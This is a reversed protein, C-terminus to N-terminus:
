WRCNEIFNILYANKLIFNVQQTAYIRLNTPISPPKTPGTVATKNASTITWPTIADIQVDFKQRSSWIDM